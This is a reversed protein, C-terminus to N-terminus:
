KIVIVDLLLHWAIIENAIHAPLNELFVKGNVIIMFNDGAWIPM